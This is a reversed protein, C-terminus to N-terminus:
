YVIVPNGDINLIKIDTNFISDIIEKKISSVTPGYLVLKGKNLILIKKSYKLALNLDHSIVIITKGLEKNLKELFSYVEIKHNIDLFSDPEDLFIVETEQVLSQALMVRRKEGGSLNSFYKDKLEVLDLFEIYKNVIEIDKETYSEFVKKHPFRGMLVIEFVTFPITDPLFQPLFSIIKALNIRKIKKINKGNILIKGNDPLLTGNILYMLSTKGSGNPGLISVFDGKKFNVSFGAFLPIFGKYSFDLNKIEIIYDDM